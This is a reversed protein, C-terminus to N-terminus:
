NHLLARIEQEAGQSPKSCHNKVIRGKKDILVYQPFATISYNEKLIKEWNGNAFLNITSLSHKLIMYKWTEESSEMCISVIKVSDNKFIEM